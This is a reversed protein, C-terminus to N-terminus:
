APAAPGGTGPCEEGLCGGGPGLQDNVRRFAAAITALEDTSVNDLFYARVGAVHHPAVTEITDRGSTTLVAWTGRRDDPCTERAVLGRAELRGIHHSLRSRSEVSLNALETMRLRGGESESLAVLVGYDDHTLGQAKLDADLADLLRRSGTIFARWASQETDTLWSVSAATTAAAPSSM